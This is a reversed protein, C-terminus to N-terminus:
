AGRKKKRLSKAYSNTFRDPKSFHEHLILLFQVKWFINTQSEVKGIFKFDTRPHASRNFQKDKWKWVLHAMRWCTQHYKIKKENLMKVLNAQLSLFFFFFIM